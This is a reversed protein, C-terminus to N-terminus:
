GELIEVAHLIDSKRLLKIIYNHIYTDCGASQDLGWILDGQHGPTSGSHIQLM